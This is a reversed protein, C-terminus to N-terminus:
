CAEKLAGDIMVTNKGSKKAKYLNEDAAKILDDFGKMEGSPFTGVGISVTVKEGNMGTFSFEEVAKRIKEALLFIGESPCHSVYGIFEEGGYRAWVDTSRTKARLLTSLESLIKDGQQHGFTDNIMKFNDIDIMVVALPHQYRKARGFEASLHEFLYRRNYLGTLPDTVSLKEVEKHILANDLAIAIQAILYEIHTVEDLSYTNLSGLVFVGSLRDKCVMPYWALGVPMIKSFGTELSINAERIDQLVVTKKETACKGALGETASLTRIDGEGIGSSIVPKLLENADDYLYVAGMHSSTLEITRSLAKRLLVEPESSQILIKSLENFRDLRRERVQISDIMHNFGNAIQEFDDKTKIDVRVNLNGKATEDMASTLVNIPKVTDRYSLGAFILSFVVGVCTVLLINNRMNILNHSIESDFIGVAIAGVVKGEVNTIPEVAAYADAGDVPVMGLFPKNELVNKTITEPIVALHTFISKPSNATSIVRGEHLTNTIVAATVNYNEFIATPLWDSRNLLIGTVFAGTPTGNSIVPTVAIQMLGSTEIKSALESDEKALFDKSIFETSIVPEGTNLAREVIGNIELLDGVRGNRRGIVRKDADIVAWVDVYQRSAAYGNLLKQLHSQDKKFVASKVSDESGAQLMGLRMQDMRSYYFRWAGKLKSNLGILADKEIQNSLTITTYYYFGGGLVSIIILFALLTKTAISLKLRWSGWVVSYVKQSM